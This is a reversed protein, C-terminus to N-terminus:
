RSASEAHGKKQKRKQVLQNMVEVFLSFAMAFYIYPRPIHFNLGDAILVVGVLLLFSLALMKITPHTHVIRCLPGSAWLMIAVTLIIAAAMVTYYPTLGVATMVSDLSFILDLFLIQVLVMSFVAPAKKPQEAEDTLEPELSSHMEVVAKYLLFLGGGILILSRVSIPVDFVFFLPQQFQIIWYVAGLLALRMICALMLGLRRAKAQQEMPLRETVVALFVLNDVGLIVELLSLTFLSIWVQPDLLFEM